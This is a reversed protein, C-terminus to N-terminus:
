GGPEMGKAKLVVAAGTGSLFDILAQAAGAEKTEAMVGLSFLFNAPDQLEPPLLGVLELGPERLVEMPQSLAIEVDGKAVLAVASETATPFKTKTKLEETLGLREIARTIVVNTTGGRAPHAYTISRAAALSRKLSEVSSIDPKAAGKRVAVGVASRAMDVINGAIKRQTLLEDIARRPLLAVDGPEGNQIRTRIEGATGYVISVKYGSTHEFNGALEDLVGAFVNASM